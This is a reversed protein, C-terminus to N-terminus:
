ERRASASCCALLALTRRATSCDSFSPTTVSHDLASTLDAFSSAACASALILNFFARWSSSWNRESAELTCFVEAVAVAVLTKRIASAVGFLSCDAVAVSERLM